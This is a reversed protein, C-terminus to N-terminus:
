AIAEEVGGNGMAIAHDKVENSSNLNVQKKKPMKPKFILLDPNTVSEKFERGKADIFLGNADLSVQKKLVSIYAKHKGAESSLVRLSFFCVNNSGFKVIEEFQPKQYFKVADGDIVKFGLKHVTGNKKEISEKFLEDMTSIQDEKSLNIQM